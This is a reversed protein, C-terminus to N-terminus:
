PGSSCLSCTSCPLRLIHLNCGVLSHIRVQQPKHSKCISIRCGLCLTRKELRHGQLVMDEASLICPQMALSLGQFQQLADQLHPHIMQYLIVIQM